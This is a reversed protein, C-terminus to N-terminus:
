FFYTFDKIASRSYFLSLLTSTLEKQSSCSQWHSVITTVIMSILLIIMPDLSKFSMNQNLSEFLSKLSSSNLLDPLSILCVLQDNGIKCIIWIIEKFLNHTYTSGFQTINCTTSQVTCTYSYVLYGHLLSNRCTRRSESLALVWRGLGAPIKIKHLTLNYIALFTFTNIM